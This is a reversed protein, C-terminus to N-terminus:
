IYISSPCLGRVTMYKVPNCEILQLPQIFLSSVQELTQNFLLFELKNTTGTLEHSIDLVVQCVKYVIHSLM